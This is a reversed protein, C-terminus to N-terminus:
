VNVINVPSDLQTNIGDILNWQFTNAANSIGSRSLSLIEKERKRDFLCGLLLM